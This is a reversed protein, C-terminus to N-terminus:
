VSGGGIFVRKTGLFLSYDLVWNLITMQFSQQANINTSFVNFPCKKIRISNLKEKNGLEARNQCRFVVKSSKEM